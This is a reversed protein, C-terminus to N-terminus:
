MELPPLLRIKKNHKANSREHDYATQNAERREELEFIGQIRRTLVKRCVEDCTSIVSVNDLHGLAWRQISRSPAFRRSLRHSDGLKDSESRSPMGLM